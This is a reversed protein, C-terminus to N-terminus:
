LGLESSIEQMSKLVIGVFEEIKIGLKEESMRIQERNVGAAFQKVPFKKLVSEVTVASLKKEPLVLAVAVILGTLEDCCYLSWELNNQPANGGAHAYNHSLIASIVTEDTEGADRLWQAMVKTHESPNDKTKEYDGDHLLGIVAWKREDEKFHKALAKMAAEVAYCHRLLNKNQLNEELIKLAVERTIM